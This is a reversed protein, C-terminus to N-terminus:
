YDILWGGAELRWGDEMWGFAAAQQTTSADLLVFHSASRPSVEAVMIASYRWSGFLLHRSAESGVGGADADM